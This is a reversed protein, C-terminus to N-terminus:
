ENEKFYKKTIEMYNRDEFKEFLYNYTKNNVVNKLMNEIEIKIANIKTKNYQFLTLARSRNIDYGTIDSSYFLSSIVLSIKDYKLMEIFHLSIILIMLSLYFTDNKNENLTIIKWAFNLIDSNTIFNFNFNLKKMIDIETNKVENNDIQILYNDIKSLLKFTSQIIIKIQQENLSNFNDFIFRDIINMM